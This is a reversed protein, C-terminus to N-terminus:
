VVVHPNVQSVITFNVGFLRHLERDPIDTMLSGDRWQRGAGRYPVLTGNPLKMLLEVPNLVGPVASSALVATAVVVNPTSIYNCLKSPSHPESAVLSINLIRGTKQYAELFTMPGKTAWLTKDYWDQTDFMAGTKRLSKFREPYTPSCATLHEYVSDIFIENVLEEDTRCCIIAAILSGASTGTIISPLLGNEFLAKAVCASEYRSRFWVNSPYRTTNTDNMMTAIWRKEATSLMCHYYGLTGGGSLCLATRGFIRVTSKFFEEKEVNDIDPAAALIDLSAVMEDVYEEVVSKTGFYTHSYLAENEVGGLNSKCAGHQLIQKIETAARARAQVQSLAASKGARTAAEISKNANLYATRHRKLRRNLRLVLDVDYYKCEEQVKWADNDLYKDLERALTKWEDYSQANRLRKFLVGKKGRWVILNEYIRVVQRVVTYWLLDLVVVMFIFLQPRRM